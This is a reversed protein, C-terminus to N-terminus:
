GTAAVMSGCSQHCLGATARTIKVSYRFNRATQTRVRKSPSGSREETAFMMLPPAGMLACTM